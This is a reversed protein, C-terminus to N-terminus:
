LTTLLNNLKNNILDKDTQSKALKLAHEYNLQAQQKDLNTYLYGMLM